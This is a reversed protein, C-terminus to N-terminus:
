RPVRITRTAVPKKSDGQTIIITAQRPTFAKPLPTSGTLQSYYDVSVDVPDTNITAGNGNPYYGAIRLEMTGQFPPNGEKDQMVLIKYNLQGDSNVFDAARIGPNTGRPDPPIAQVLPEINNKLKTIQEQAQKLQDALSDRASKGETITSSQSDVQALLRQKDLNASNLDNQLQLSQEATLRVPGYSKQLFLLGGAGLVIGTLILVLWRPIRRRRRSSGYPTPQFVNHKSSGFLAM